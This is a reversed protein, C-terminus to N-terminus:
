QYAKIYGSQIIEKRDRANVHQREQFILILWVLAAKGISVLDKKKKKNSNKRINGCDLSKKKFNLM